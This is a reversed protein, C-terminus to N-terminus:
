FARRYVGLEAFSFVFSSSLKLSALRQGLGANVRRCTGERSPAELENRHFQREIIAGNTTGSFQQRIGHFFKRSNDLPGTSTTVIALSPGRPAQSKCRYSHAGTASKNADIHKTVRTSLSSLKRGGIACSKWRM